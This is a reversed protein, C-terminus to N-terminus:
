IMFRILLWVVFFLFSGGFVTGIAAALAIALPSHDPLTVIHPTQARWESSGHAPTPKKELAKFGDREKSLEGHHLKIHEGAEELDKFAAELHGELSEAKEKFGDREKRTIEHNAREEAFNGELSAVKNELKVCDRLQSRTYAHAEVERALKQTLSALTEKPMREIYFNLANM